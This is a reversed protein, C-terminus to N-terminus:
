TVNQVIETAYSELLRYVFRESMVELVEEPDNGLLPILQRCAALIVAEAEELERGTLAICHEMRITILMNALSSSTTM